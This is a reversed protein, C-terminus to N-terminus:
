EGKLAIASILRGYSPERNHTARRYSFFREADSYTCLALNDVQAVGFLGLRHTIYGTLDFM